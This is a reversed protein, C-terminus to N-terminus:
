DEGQVVSGLRPAIHKLQQNVIDYAHHTYTTTVAGGACQPPQDVIADPLIIDISVVRPSGTM